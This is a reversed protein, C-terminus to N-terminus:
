EREPPPLQAWMVLANGGILSVGFTSTDFVSRWREESSRLAEEARKRELVDGLLRGLKEVTDLFSADPPRRERSFFEFVALVEKDLKVPFGM